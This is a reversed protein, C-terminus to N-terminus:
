IGKNFNVIERRKHKLKHCKSCLIKLNKFFDNGKEKKSIIHHIELCTNSGCKECKEGRIKLLIEKRKQLNLVGKMGSFANQCRWCCRYYFGDISVVDSCHIKEKCIACEM